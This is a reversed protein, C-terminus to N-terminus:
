GSSWWSAWSCSARHLGVGPGGAAHQPHRHRHHLEDKLELMLEEIKRPPSRTSPRARSTWSSCTPSWRSRARSASGSSSAARSGSRARTCGTRCRTGSPPPARPEAGRHGRSREPQRGRPHAARLRRERLHVEPVPEVEPVGHGGAQAARHRGPEPRPHRHRRDRISGEIRVGDVLDNMRNLCRLLTSKGCGSPGIYATVRHKPMSMSVDKLALKAGYWLSLHEIEVM